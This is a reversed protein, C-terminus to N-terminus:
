DCRKKVVKFLIEVTDGCEAGSASLATNDFRIRRNCDIKKTIKTYDKMGTITDTPIFVKRDIGL